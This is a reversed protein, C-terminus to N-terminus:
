NGCYYIRPANADTGHRRRTITYGKRKIEVKVGVRSALWSYYYYYYYYSEEREKRIRSSIASTDSQEPRVIRDLSREEGRRYTRVIHRHAASYHRFRDLVVSLKRTNRRSANGSAHVSELIAHHFLPIRSFFSPLFFNRREGKRIRISKRKGGKKNFNGESLFFARSIRPLPALGDLPSTSFFPMPDVLRSLYCIIIKTSSLSLRRQEKRKNRFNGSRHIGRGRGGQHSHPAAVPRAHGAPDISKAATSCFASHLSSLLFPPPSFRSYIRRPLYLAAPENDNRVHKGDREREGQGPM